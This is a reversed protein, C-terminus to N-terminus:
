GFPSGYLMTPVFLHNEFYKELLRASMKGSFMKIFRNSHLIYNREVLRVAEVVDEYSPRSRSGAHANLLSYWKSLCYALLMLYYNDAVSLGRLLDKRFIFHRLYERIYEDQGGFSYEVKSLESLSVARPQTRFSVSGSGAAIRMFNSFVRLLGLPLVGEVETPLMIRAVAIRYSVPPLSKRM